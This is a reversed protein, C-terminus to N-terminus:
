QAKKEKKEKNKNNKACCSSNEQKGDSNKKIKINNNSGRDAKESNVKEIFNPDLYKGVANEFLININDGCKASTLFFLAKIKEAFARAKSEDVQENKYLDCKNGVVALVTYKEGYQKLDPYWVKEINEFSSYSSIDYVLCVIYADKYFKRGLARYKESGATDWLNCQIKTDNIILYKQTFGIGVTISVNEDFKGTAFRKTICSKGVGSDGILAIKVGPISKDDDM